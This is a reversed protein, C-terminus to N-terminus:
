KKLNNQFINKYYSGSTLIEDPYFETDQFDFISLQNKIISAHQYGINKNKKNVTKSHYFIIKEFNYGEFTSILNEFKIKKFLKKIQLSLRVNSLTEQSLIEGLIIM